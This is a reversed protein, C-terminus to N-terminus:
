TRPTDQTKLTDQENLIDNKSFKNIRNKIM